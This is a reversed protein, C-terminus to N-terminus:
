MAWSHGGLLGPAEGIAEHVFEFGLPRFDMRSDWYDVEMDKVVLPSSFGTNNPQTITLRFQRAARNLPTMKRRGKYLLQPLHRAVHSDM